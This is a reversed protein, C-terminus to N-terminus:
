PTDNARGAVYLFRAGFPSGRSAQQNRNSFRSHSVSVAFTTQSIRPWVFCHRDSRITECGVAAAGWNNM